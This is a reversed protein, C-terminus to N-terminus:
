VLFYIRAEEPLLYKEQKSIFNIVSSYEILDIPDAVLM